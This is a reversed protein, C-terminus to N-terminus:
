LESEVGLRPVEMNRPHPGLFSFLLLFFLVWPNLNLSIAFKSGEVFVIRLSFYTLNTQPAPHKTKQKLYSCALVHCHLIYCSSTGDPLAM